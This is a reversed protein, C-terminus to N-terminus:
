LILLLFFCVLSRAGGAYTVPIPSWKALLEVLEEQIGCRKGEVDVAHVLFEDCYDALKKFIDESDTLLFMLSTKKNKQKNKRYALRVQAFYKYVKAM